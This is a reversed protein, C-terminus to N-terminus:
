RNFGARALLKGFRADGRLSDWRPDVKLYGLESDRRAFGENLWRFAQDKEGLAAYVCAAASSAAEGYQQVRAELSRAIKVAEERGGLMAHVFGLDAQLEHDGSAGRSLEEWIRLERLAEEHRGQFANAEAIVQHASISTSEMQVVRRAQMIADDYRRALLLTVAYQSNASVSLPEQSIAIKIEAVAQDFREHQTLLVAYWLHAPAYGPLLEIARTFSREAAEWEFANKQVYGLSAHAEALTDDLAIAKQAADRARAAAEARPLTRYVGMLTYTDALGAYAPAFSPDRRVAEDFYRLARNFGEETRLGWHYRGKLYLNFTEFDGKKRGATLRAADAPSLEGTLAIAIKRAVETQLSFIDNLDRDYDDAWIQEGTRADLLQAVIRVQNGSRRLSGDLVAAASMEAGIQVATRTRDAYRSGSIVRLDAIRGLHTAIDAAVGESFYDSEQDGSLNKFPLIVVSSRTTVPPPNFFARWSLAIVVLALVAAASYWLRTAGPFRRSSLADELLRELAGASDPRASPDIATAQEIVRLFAAPLDPRIDRLLRPKKQQHLAKLEDLSSATFPFEGSVLYYLLVGLSYIDSRVSPDGGALIEPAVYLPTGTLGEERGVDLRGGAGFDMLVVRGGAERMVNQPKIDRHLFGRSHVAALARCLDIGILTAERAGFPGQSEVIDKLTRGNVLETWIGVSGEFTDAGHVTVINPHRIRALLRGEHVVSSAGPAAAASVHLIKLAVERELRTDWARYVTGFSGAGIQGRIELPGWIEPTSRSVDAVVALTRLHRVLERGEADLAGSEAADWDVNSGDAVAQALANFPDEAEVQM